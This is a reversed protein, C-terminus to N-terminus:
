NIRKYEHRYCDFCPDTLYLTDSGVFEVIHYEEDDNIFLLSENTEDGWINKEVIKFTAELNLEKNKYQYYDGNETFVVEVRYGVTAPTRLDGGWGCCSQRWDWRGIIKHLTDAPGTINCKLTLLVLIAIIRIFESEFKMITM